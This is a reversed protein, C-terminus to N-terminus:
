RVSEILYEGGLDSITMSLTNQFYQGSRNITFVVIVPSISIIFYVWYNACKDRDHIYIIENYASFM